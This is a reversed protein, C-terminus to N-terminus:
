GKREREREKSRNEQITEAVYIRLIYTTCNIPNWMRERLVIISQVDLFVIKALAWYSTKHLIEDNYGDFEEGYDCNQICHYKWWKRSMVDRRFVNKDTETEKRTMWIYLEVGAINLECQRKWWDDDSAICEIQLFHIFPFRFLFLVFKYIRFLSLCIFIKLKM